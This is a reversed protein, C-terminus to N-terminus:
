NGEVYIMWSMMAQTQGIFKFLITANKNDWAAAGMVKLAAAIDLYTNWLRENEVATVFANCSFDDM